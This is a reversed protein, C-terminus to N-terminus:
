SSRMTTFKSQKPEKKQLKNIHLRMNGLTALSVLYGFIVKCEQDELRRKGLEPIM